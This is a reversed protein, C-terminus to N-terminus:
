NQSKQAVLEAKLAKVERRKKAAIQAKLLTIKDDVNDRLNALPEEDLNDSNVVRM